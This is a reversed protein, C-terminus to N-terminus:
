APPAPCRQARDAYRAGARPVLRPVRPGGARCCVLLPCVAIVLVLPDALLAVALLAGAAAPLLWVRRPSPRRHAPCYRDLVLWTLM